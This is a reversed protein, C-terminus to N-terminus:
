MAANLKNCTKALDTSSTFIKTEIVLSQLVVAQYRRMGLQLARKLVAGAALRKCKHLYVDKMTLKGDQLRIGISNVEYRM